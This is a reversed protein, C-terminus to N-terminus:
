GNEVFVKCLLDIRRMTANTAALLEHNDGCVIKVWEKEVAVTSALSALATVTGGTRDFRLCYSHMFHRKACVVHLYTQIPPSKTFLACRVSVFM